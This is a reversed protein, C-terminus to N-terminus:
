VSLYRTTAETLNFQINNIIMILKKEGIDIICDHMWQVNVPQLACSM